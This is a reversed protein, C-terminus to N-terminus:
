FKDTSRIVHKHCEGESAQAKGNLNADAGPRLVILSRTISSRLIAMFSGFVVEEPLRALGSIECFCPM